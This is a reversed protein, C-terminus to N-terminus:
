RPLAIWRLIVEQEWDNLPESPAPPMRLSELPPPFRQGVAAACDLAGVQCQGPTPCNTGTSQFRDLYCVNPPPRRRIEGTEPNLVPEGTAQDIIPDGRLMDGAGHCRVCHAMFLPRVHEEFTPAFPIEPECGGVVLALGITLWAFSLKRM